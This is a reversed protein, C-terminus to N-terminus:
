SRDDEKEGKFYLIDIVLLLIFCSWILLQLLLLLRAISSLLGGSLFALYVCVGNFCFLGIDHLLQQNRKAWTKVKKYMPIDDISHRIKKIIKNFM